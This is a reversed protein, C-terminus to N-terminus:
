NAITKLTSVIPISPLTSTDQNMEGEDLFRFTSLIQNALNKNNVSDVGITFNYMRNGKISYAAVLQNHPPNSPYPNNFTFTYISWAVGNISRDDKDTQQPEYDALGATSNLSGIFSKVKEDILDIDSQSGSRVILHTNFQFEYVTNSPKFISLIKEKEYTNIEFEWTNPYDFTIGYEENRYTEWDATQNSPMTSVDRRPTEVNSPMEVVENQMQYWQYGYVGVVSGLIFVLAILLVKIPLHHKPEKLEQTQEVSKLPQIPKDVSQIQESM